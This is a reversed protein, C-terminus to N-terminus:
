IASEAVINVIHVGKKKAYKLTNYAGGSERLVYAIILDCRDVLWENRKSIARKFHVKEKELPFYIEDYYKKYYECDKMMYPLVLILKCKPTEQKRQEGRVIAAALLDFVGNRGVFFEVYEHKELIVQVVSRLIEEQTWFGGEIERHGVFAVRYGQM